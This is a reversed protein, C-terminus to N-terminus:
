SSSSTTGARPIAARVRESRESRGAARTASAAGSEENTWRGHRQAPISTSTPPAAGAEDAAAAAAGPVAALAVSNFGAQYAPTYGRVYDSEAHSM